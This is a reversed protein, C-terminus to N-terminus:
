KNQCEKGLIYMCNPTCGRNSLPQKADCSKNPFGTNEFNIFAM